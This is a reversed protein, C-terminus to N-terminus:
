LEYKVESKLSPKHRVNTVWSEVKIDNEKAVKIFSKEIQKAATKNKALAFMAPGSGSITCCIADSKLASEQFEKFCPILLSRHKEILEDTLSVKILELDNKYISSIFGALNASQLTYDDLPLKKNLITRALKTDIRVKPHLLTVYLSKPLPLEIIHVPKVSQILTLGGYLAPVVNDPHAHGTAIFEGHMAYPVLEELSLPTIFFQNLACLAAVSSAASGGMGSGLPIGKDIEIDFGITCKKENLVKQIVATVVNKKSDLPLGQIGHIATIKLQSDSRRKLKVTDGISEVAFGLIDFGVAVNAVTAPAFSEAYHLNNLM